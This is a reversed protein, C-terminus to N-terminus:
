VANRRVNVKVKLPHVSVVRRCRDAPRLARPRFKQRDVPDTPRVFRTELGSIKVVSMSTKAADVAAPFESNGFIKKTKGFVYVGWVRLYAAPFRETSM